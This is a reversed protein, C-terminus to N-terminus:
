SLKPCLCGALIRSSRGVYKEEDVDDICRNCLITDDVGRGSETSTVDGFDENM